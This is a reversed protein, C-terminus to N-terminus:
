LLISQWWILEGDDPDYTVGTRAFGNRELVRQSVINTVSTAAVVVSITSDRRATDLMAGVASSAHGRDRRGAAIGYGIEVKGDETPPQKYSCLGVVENDAVILWCGRCRAEKMRSNMGRLLRLIAPSDVGDPPLRLHPFPASIEGLMWAFHADVAEVLTTHEAEIVAM